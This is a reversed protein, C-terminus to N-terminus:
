KKWFALTGKGDITVLINLSPHLAGSIFEDAAKYTRVEAKGEVDYVHCTGDKTLCYLFREQPSMGVAVITKDLTWFPNLKSQDSSLGLVTNDAVLYGHSMLRLPGKSGAICSLQQGSKADWTRVTGDSGLSVVRDTGMFTAFHVFGSHGRFEKMVRGSNIGLLRVVGDNGTSIILANDHSFGITNVVGHHAKPIIKTAKGSDVRFVGMEGEITAAVLLESDSSFGIASIAAGLKMEELEVRVCTKWDWLELSGDTKGISLHTGDPSFAVLRAGAGDVRGYQESCIGDPGLTHEPVTGLFVDVSLADEEVLAKTLLQVLRGAPVVRVAKRIRKALEPRHERIGEHSRTALAAELQLYHEADTDKLSYLVETHRLITKAGETAGEEIM